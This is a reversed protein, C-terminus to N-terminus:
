RQGSAAQASLFPPGAQESGVGLMCGSCFGSCPIWFGSLFRSFQSHPLPFLDPGSLQSLALSVEDRPGSRQVNGPVAPKGSTVRVEGRGRGEHKGHGRSWARRRVRLSGAM